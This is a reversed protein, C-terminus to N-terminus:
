PKQDLLLICVSFLACLCFTTSAQLVCLAECLRFAAVCGPLPSLPTIPRPSCRCLSRSFFAHAEKRSPGTYVTIHPGSSPLPAPIYPTHLTHAPPPATLPLLSSSSLLQCWSM